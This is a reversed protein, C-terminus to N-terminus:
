KSSVVQQRVEERHAAKEKEDALWEVSAIECSVRHATEEEAIQV